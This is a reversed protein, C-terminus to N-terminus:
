IKFLRLMSIINYREVIKDITNDMNEIIEERVDERPELQATEEDKYLYSLKHILEDFEPKYLQDKDVWIESSTSGDFWLRVFLKGPKEPDERITIFGEEEAMELVSLLKPKKLNEIEEEYAIQEEDKNM